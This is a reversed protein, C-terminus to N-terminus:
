KGLYDTIPRGTQLHNEYAVLWILCKLVVKYMTVNPHWNEPKYHCLRIFRSNPKLLHMQHSPSIALLERGHFDRLVIPNIIYAEPMSSPYDATAVLLLRYTGGSPVAVDVELRAVGAADQVLSFSGKFTEEMVTTEIKLRALDVLHLTSPCTGTRLCVNRLSRRSRRCITVRAGRTRRRDRMPYNALGSALSSDFACFYRVGGSTGYFYVWQGLDSLYLYPFYLEKTWIWRLDSDYIWLGDTGAEAYQWAANKASVFWGNGYQLPWV